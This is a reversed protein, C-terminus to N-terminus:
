TPQFLTTQLDHINEIRQTQKPSLMGSIILAGFEHLFTYAMAQRLFAEDLVQTPDYSKTFAELSSTNRALASFWLAVWEYERPAVRADAFDILGSIAWTNGCRQLMVHDETVDGSVLVLDPTGQETLIMNVFAPVRNIVRDPLATERRLAATARVIQQQTYHQWGARTVDLTSLTSLPIAHLHRLRRGLEEAINLLDRADIDDRVERIPKGPIFSLVIYPWASGSELKGHAIIRPAGLEPMRGLLLHIEREFACDEHCFPAYIKVVARQSPQERNVVFVANSGPYGATISRCPLGARRCIEEVLPAWTPVDLFIKGWDDWTKV